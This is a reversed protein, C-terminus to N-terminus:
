ENEKKRSNLRINMMKNMGKHMRNNKMENM